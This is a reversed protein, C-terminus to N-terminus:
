SPSAVSAPCRRLIAAARAPLGRLGAPLLQHEEPPGLLTNAERARACAAAPAPGSPGSLREALELDLDALAIRNEASDAARVAEDERVSIAERLGADAASVDGQRRAVRSQEALAAALTVKWTLNSADEAVLRRSDAVAAALLPAASPLDGAREEVSGLLYRSEALDHKARTDRADLRALRERIELARRHESRAGAVDGARESAVALRIHDVALDRQTEANDPSSAALREDIELSARHLDRARGFDGQHTAADALRQVVVGKGRLARREQPHDAIFRDVDALAAEYEPAAEPIRGLEWLDDGVAVRIQILDWRAPEYREGNWLPEFVARAARHHALAGSYDGREALTAGLNNDVLARGRRFRPDRPARALLRDFLALSSRYSAVADGTRGLNAWGALGQVDGVRKYAQALEFLLDVDDNGSERSLRDLYLLAKDVLLRRANTSGSIEDIADYVEFLLSNALQRADAFRAEARTREHEARVREREARRAQLLALVSLLVLALVAALGLGVGLRHRRVFKGARYRLSDPRALVPRGELHRRLDDGLAEVSAYRRDPELTMAKLLITDLDGRLRAAQRRGEASDGSLALVRSSARPPPARPTALAGDLREGEGAFPAEGVLLEFALAGMGWVDTATTTAEGAIQEPAAYAPTLLRLERVTQQGEVDGRLLKAIGFDLLKVEGGASVLVNSPKLDRHVVLNRHAYAVADCAVLLLELRQEVTLAQRQAFATIPLGDVREMVLYPRGDDLAGGDLLRSIAPHELGALIRRERLFRALLEETDLGRRMLKVAVRQEFAGDDREGAYVDAM